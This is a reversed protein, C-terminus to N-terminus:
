MSWRCDGVSTASSTAPKMARFHSRQISRALEKTSVRLNQSHVLATVCWGRPTAIHVKGQLHSSDQAYSDVRPRRGRRRCGRWPTRPGRHAARPSLSRVPQVLGVRVGPALTSVRRKPAVVGVCGVDLVCDVRDFRVLLRQGSVGGLDLERPFARLLALLDFSHLERITHVVHRCILARWCPRRRACRATPVWGLGWKM